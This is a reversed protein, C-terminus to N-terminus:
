FTTLIVLSIKLAAAMRRSAMVGTSFDRRDGHAAVCCVHTLSTFDPKGPSERDGADKASEDDSSPSGSTRMSIEAIAPMATPATKKKTTALTIRRRNQGRIALFAIFSPWPLVHIISAGPEIVVSIQNHHHYCLWYLPM